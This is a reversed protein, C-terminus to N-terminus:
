FRKKWQEARALAQEVAEAESAANAEITHSQGFEATALQCVFRCGGNPLQVLQFSVTGLDKLRKRIAVWDTTPLRSPSSASAVGLQEPSPLHVPPLTRAREPQDSSVGRYEIQPQQRPAQVMPQASALPFQAPPQRQTMPRQAPPAYGQTPLGQPPITQPGYGQPPFGQPPMGGQPVMAYGPYGNM